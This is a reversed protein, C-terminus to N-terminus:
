EKDWFSLMYNRGKWEKGKKVFGAKELTTKMYDNYTTAFLRGPYQSLLAKVIRHSLDNNRHDHDVAVYGLELTDPPFEVGSKSSIGAAYKRRERKVVGVGVIQAGKSAIALATALPLERAASEWDVAEGKKIVAVCAAIDTTTMDGAASLKVDYEEADSVKSQEAINPSKM